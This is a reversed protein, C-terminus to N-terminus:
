GAGKFKSLKLSVSHIIGTGLHKAIKGLKIVVRCLHGM